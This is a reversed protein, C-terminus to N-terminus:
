GSQRCLCLGTRNPEALEPVALPRNGVRALADSAVADNRNAGARARYRRAGFDDVQPAVGSQRSEDIEVRVDGVVPILLRARPRTTLAPKGPDGPIQRLGVGLAGELGADRRNSI